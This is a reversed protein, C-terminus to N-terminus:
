GFAEGRRRRSKAFARDFTLAVKIPNGERRELILLGEEAQEFPLKHTVLKELPFRRSEILSLAPEYANSGMHSFRIDIKARKLRDPRFTVEDAPRFGGINVYVGGKGTMDLGQQFAATAGSADIVRHALDGGTM